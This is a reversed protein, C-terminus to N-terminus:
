RRRRPGASPRRAAGRSMQRRRERSTSWGHRGGAASTRQLAAKYQNAQSALRDVLLDPTLGFVAAVVLGLGPLEINFIDPLRRVTDGTGDGGIFVTESLLAVIVVGGVAALGSLVPMYFLRAHSFGFDEDGVQGDSERRLQNFLGVAAGVLYYAAAAVIAHMPAQNLIALALLVYAAVATFTGTWILSNRARVLNAREGDRFGNVTRRVDRLVLRALTLEEATAPPAAAAGAAAEQEGSGDNGDAVFQNSAASLLKVASRSKAQLSQWQAMETAGDLRLQDYLADAAVDERPGVLFLAEEAAHLHRWLDVYGSGQVWRAGLSDVLEGNIFDRRAWAEDCAAQCALPPEQNCIPPGTQPCLRPLRADLSQVRDFFEGYLRPDVRDPATFQRNRLAFLWAFAVAVLPASSRRWSTSTPKGTSGASGTQRVTVDGPPVLYLIITVVAGLTLFFVATSLLTALFGRSGPM